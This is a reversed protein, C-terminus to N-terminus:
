PNLFSQSTVEREIYRTEDPIGSLTSCALTHGLWCESRYTASFVRCSIWGRRNGLKENGLVVGSARGGMCYCNFLLHYRVSCVVLAVLIQATKQLKPIVSELVQYSHETHNSGYGYHVLIVILLPFCPPFRYNYRIKVYMRILLQSSPM